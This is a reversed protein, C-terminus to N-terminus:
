ANRPKQTCLLISLQRESAMAFCAVQYEMIAQGFLKRTKSFCHAKKKTIIRQGKQKRRSSCGPISRHGKNRGQSHPSKEKEPSGSKGERCARQRCCGPATLGFSLPSISGHSLEWAALARKCGSLLEALSSFPFFWASTRSICQKTWTERREQDRKGRGGEGWIQKAARGWHATHLSKGQDWHSAVTAQIGSRGRHVTLM